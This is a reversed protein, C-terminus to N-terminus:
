RGEFHPARREIVAALGERADYTGSLESVTRSEDPLATEVSRGVGDWLLRKAAGLALPAGAALQEAWAFAEDLLTTDDVVRNVLGIAKAEDASLTPNTLVLEMATRIGVIRSLTVSVGADPAMGARTAGPLFKAARGAIVLDAACVLGFGGGGAAYGHVAAIVPARLRMLGSAVMQLWSTAERLYDPLAEGKSAFDKVDGGTCFNKGAGSLVLVRLAPDGHARMVADHLERLFVVSMANSAEPRNLLLHGVGDKRLDLLVMDNM